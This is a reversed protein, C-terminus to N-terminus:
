LMIQKQDETRYQFFYPAPRPRRERWSSFIAKSQRSAASTTRCCSVSLSGCHTNIKPSSMILAPSAHITKTQPHLSVLPVIGSDIVVNTFLKEGWEANIAVVLSEARVRLNAPQIGGSNPLCPMPPNRATKEESFNFDVTTRQVKPGIVVIPLSFEMNPLRIGAYAPRALCPGKASRDGDPAGGKGAQESAYLM